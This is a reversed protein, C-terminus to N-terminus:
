RWDDRELLPLNLIDKEKQDDTPLRAKWSEVSQELKKLISRIESMETVASSLQRALRTLARVISCISVLVLVAFLVEWSKPDFSNKSVSNVVDRIWSVFLGMQEM